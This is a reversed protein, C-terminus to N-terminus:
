RTRSRTCCCRSTCSSRSLWAPSTCSDASVPAVLNIRPALMIAILAAVIFWSARVLVDVGAIQGIRLTGPPREPRHDGDRRSTSM